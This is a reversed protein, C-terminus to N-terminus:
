SRMRIAVNTFSISRKGDHCSPEALCQMIGSQFFFLATVEKRRKDHIPCYGRFAGSKDIGKDLDIWAGWSQWQHESPRLDAPVQQM